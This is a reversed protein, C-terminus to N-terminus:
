FNRSSNIYTLFPMVLNVLKNTSTAPCVFKQIMYNGGLFNGELLALRIDTMSNADRLFAANLVTEELEYDVAKLQSIQDFGTQSDTTSTLIDGNEPSTWVVNRKSQYGVALFKKKIAAKDNWVVTISSPYQVGYFNNYVDSDHTYTNGNKYTILLTGLTCMAEPIYSQRSDLSKFKESFMRTTAESGTVAELCFIYNNIKQDFAGIINDDNRLVIEKTAWSNFKYEESLDTIGDQSLRLVAGRVPDTFYFAYDRKYLSAKNNGIGYEGDYYRIPNLLQDTNLLVNNGTADVALKNFIPFYGTKLQQFTELQRNNVAIRKIAGYKNDAEIFNEPLFRNLRNINTEAEIDQSFQCVQGFVTPKAYIDIINPRGSISSVASIYFDVVNRDQVNFTAVGTESIPVTRSRIYTDGDYFNFEAPTVYDASQDTVQGAHRRTDTGADLIAYEAGFEIYTQNKATASQQGPRFIEIVFFKTSYDVTNFPATNKIKIFNGTTAVNNIVPNIVYGLIPADYTDAYVTGDSMRRILRMRDGDAFSYNLVNATTPNKLANLNINSVDFYLNAAETINVNVTHWFLPITPELTFYFNYSTSWLPPVHYIKTNIYPVLPVASGNEAYAPFTIRGNYLIGNTKGKEDFYAIGINRETSWLWTPISDTATASAASTIILSEFVRKPDLPANGEVAVTSPPIVSQLFVQGLSAFSAVLATAVTAATDGAITTYTAALFITGTSVRRVRVEIVTGVTPTGTFAIQFIQFSANDIVITTVGNLSGVPVGGGAAVTLVTNVVNPAITRDLGKTVGAYQVTNGNAMDQCEAYTPVDDFIQIARNPDYTAYTSDNYFSFSFVTDDDISNDSKNIVDVTAFDSWINTKEVYSMLIRIAKVNKGGSNLSLQIVNNNTIVNTFVDSLIKYPMPMASQPSFTAEENDDFVPVQAFRFFKNRLNNVNRSTDNDYVCTPPQALPTKAADIISRTVPNYENNLFRDINIETPRGLTDLFFLLDGTDSPYINVSTIKGDPSFNLIDTASDTLCQFILTKVRTARDFEIISNYGNSNYLFEITVNRLPYPFAGIIKNTGTPNNFTVIRNGIMNTPFGDNSGETADRTINLADIYADKPFAFPSTDLDMGRNFNNKLEVQM